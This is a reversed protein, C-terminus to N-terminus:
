YYPYNTADGSFGTGGCSGCENGDLLIRAILEKKFTRTDPSDTTKEELIKQSRLRFIKGQGKCSKCKGYRESM